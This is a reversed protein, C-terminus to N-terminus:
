VPPYNMNRTQMESSINMGMTAPHMGAGFDSPGERSRSWGVLLGSGANLLFYTIFASGDPPNPTIATRFCALSPSVTTTTPRTPPDALGNVSPRAIKRITSGERFGVVSHSQGQSKQSTSLFSRAAARNLTLNTSRSPFVTEEPARSNNPM